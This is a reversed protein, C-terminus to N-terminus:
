SVAAEQPTDAVTVRDRGASKSRYLAADAAEVLWKADRGHAPFVSVGASITLRGLGKGEHTLQLGSVSVRVAEARRIADSMNCDPLLVIFEEGGYRCVVDATRFSNGLVGALEKLVVDGAAHGYTDNFRKFHDVDLLVVALSARARKARALEREFTEDLYRRNFVGTLPDRTAQDRMAERLRLNAVTLALIESVETALRPTEGDFALQLLGVTEGQAMLPLCCTKGTVAEGFHSCRVQACDGAAVVYARGVRFSWCASPQFPEDPLEDGWSAASTLLSRTANLLFLRGSVGPMCQPTLQSLVEQVDATTQAAHLMERMDKLVAAERQRDALQEAM